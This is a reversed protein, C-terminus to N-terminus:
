KLKDFIPKRNEFHTTYKFGIDILREYVYKFKLAIHEHSHADSGTCIIEGGLEKYRKIIDFDPIPSNLLKHKYGSSNIELGKGGSIIKKLIADLIDSYDVYRLSRDDYEGYRRIYGIHGVVDFNDFKTVSSYILELYRMYADNKAKGIFYKGTYPDQGDIIHVSCIVFDFDYNNIVENTEVIVHPQYGVEIGKLIKLKGKYLKKLQDLNDSYKKFDILFVEEFDPYDYDMHDTFAIGDLGLNISTECAILPDM